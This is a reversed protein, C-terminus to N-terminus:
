KSTETSANSAPDDIHGARIPYSLSRASHIYATNESQASVHRRFLSSEEDEQLTTKKETGKNVSCRTPLHPLSMVSLGDKIYSWLWNNILLNILWCMLNLSPWSSMVLVTWDTLCRDTWTVEQKNTYLRHSFSVRYFVVTSRKIRM